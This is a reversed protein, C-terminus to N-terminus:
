TFPFLSFTFIMTGFVSYPKEFCLPTVWFLPLVQSSFSRAAGNNSSHPSHFLFCTAFLPDGCPRSFPSPVQACWSSEGCRDLEKRQRCVRCTIHSFLVHVRSKVVQRSTLKTLLKVAKPRNGQKDPPAKGAQVM